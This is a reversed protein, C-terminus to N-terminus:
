SPENDQIYFHRWKGGTSDELLGLLGPTPAAEGPFVEEVQIFLRAFGANEKCDYTWTPSARGCGPCPIPASGLENGSSLMKQWNKLPSRCNRCRPPRTNSGSVFKPREFPGSLRIHCFPTGGDPTLELRVSCGAFTVLQFFCEGVLFASARGSLPVGLFGADALTTTLHTRDPALFPDYPSLLLRGIHASM